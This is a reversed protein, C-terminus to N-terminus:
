SQGGFDNTSPLPPPPPAPAGGGQPSGPPPRNGKMPVVNGLTAQQQLMGDPMVQIKFQNINRIGALGAVHTFIKSVDFEQLLTPYARMQNMIGQWLNAMAMRDVPLTGDVPTFDYFGAILEPTVELFQPGAMKALDGVIKLKMPADYWQQSNQVLRQSHPSFAAASLYETNTKLRNVGFGTSTRVETATQRKSSQGGFMQDNIGTVREGIMLMQQLDAIHGKTMDQVPVQYFFSRVDTGYAEPRLTYIFGPGGDETDEIAIKTPDIIFQNNMAARVNFFHTNILWDMTNQIPTVIEPIGRNYLAYGEVEAEGITYPFKGHMAGLPQAGLLTSYDDQITFVWKEPFKSSGLGWEEQILDVYVEWVGVSLPHKDEVDSAYVTGAREPRKLSSGSSSEQAPEKKSLFEVNMYYGDAKRRLVEGWGMTKRVGCFEGEQFRSIPFHTDFIFDFPCVNYIKNGKYGPAQFTSLAMSKGTAGDVQEISSWQITEQMWYEGFIGVGYKGIDYLWIYYPALFEGVEVQYSTLAELAQVQQESEGHRGAFQHVPSRAFFVSTWYTHAAMLLAYSYPIQITTYRPTGRDRSQNRQADEESTPLYALMLDEARQWADTFQAQGRLGFKIRDELKKCIKGHLPDQKAIKRTMGPM